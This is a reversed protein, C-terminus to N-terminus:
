YIHENPDGNTVVLISVVGGPTWVLLCTGVNCRFVTFIQYLELIITTGSFVASLTVSFILCLSM